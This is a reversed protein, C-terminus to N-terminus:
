VEGNIEQRKGGDWLAALKVKSTKVSAVTATRPM